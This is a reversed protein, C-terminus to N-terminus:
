RIYPTSKQYINSILKLLNSEIRLRSIINIILILSKERIKKRHIHNHSKKKKKLRDPHYTVTLAESINLYGKMGLLFGGQDHYVISKM